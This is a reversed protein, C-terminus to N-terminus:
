HNKSIGKIWFNEIHDLLIQFTRQEIFTSKPDASVDAKKKREVLFFAVLSIIGAIGAIGQWIPNSLFEQM